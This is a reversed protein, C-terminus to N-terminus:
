QSVQFHQRTTTPRPSTENMFPIFMPSNMTYMKEGMPFPLLNRLPRGMGGFDKFLMSTDPTAPPLEGSKFANQGKNLRDYDAGWALEYKTLCAPDINHHFGQLHPHHHYPHMPYGQPMYGFHPPQGPFRFHPPFRGLGLGM